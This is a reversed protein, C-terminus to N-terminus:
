LYALNQAWGRLIIELDPFSPGFEANKGGGSDGPSNSAWPKHVVRQSVSGLGQVLNM